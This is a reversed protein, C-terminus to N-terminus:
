PKRVYVWMHASWRRATPITDIAADMARMIQKFVANDRLVYKPIFSFLGFRPYIKAGGGLTAILADAQEATLPSGCATENNRIKRGFRYLPNANSNELFLGYAGPKLVQKLSAGFERPPFHHLVASGFVVEISNEALMTELRCCDGCYVQVREGLGHYAARKRIRECGVPSLDVAIVSAQQTAFWIANSGDGAGCELVTKGALSGMYKGWLAREAPPVVHERLPAEINSDNYREDYEAREQALLLERSQAAKM